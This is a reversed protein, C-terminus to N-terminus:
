DAADDPWVAIGISIGCAVEAHGLDVPATVAERLRDALGLAEERSTVPMVAMFEDGGLRAVFEGTRLSARMRDAIRVLLQDGAAHGHIDNVEKFRDLDMALLAVKDNGSDMATQKTLWELFSARNPLNTLSDNRALHAIRREQALRARLDRLAYIMLSTDEGEQADRRVAIEVPVAVGEAPSLKTQTLTGISLEDLGSVWQSLGKGVLDAHDVGVLEAFAANAALIRGNQEVVM